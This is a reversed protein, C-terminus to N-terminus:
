ISIFYFSIGLYYKYGTLDISSYDVAGAGSYGTTDTKTSDTLYKSNGRYYSLSTYMAMNQTVFYQGELLIVLPYSLASFKGERTMGDAKFSNTMISYNFSVGCSFFIKVDKWFPIAVGLTVPFDYSTLGYSCKVPLYDNTLNDMQNTNFITTGSGGWINMNYSAGIRYFYFDNMISRLAIGGSIGLLPRISETTVGTASKNIEYIGHESQFYARQNYSNLSGGYNPLAGAYLDISYNMKFSWASTTMLFIAILIASKYIKKMKM